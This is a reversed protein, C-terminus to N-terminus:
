LPKLVNSDNLDDNGGLNLDSVVNDGSDYTGINKLFSEGNGHESLWDEAEQWTGMDVGFCKDYDKSDQYIRYWEEDSFNVACIPFLINEEKMIMLKAEKLADEYQELRKETLGENLSGNALENWVKSFTDRIEDDDTWMLDSPGAIDYKVKLLPYILDGKKAYHVSIQRLRQVAEASLGSAVRSGKSSEDSTEMSIDSIEKEAAEIAKAMEKNEKIFTNLPHSEIKYLRAAIEKKNAYDKQMYVNEKFVKFSGVAVRM